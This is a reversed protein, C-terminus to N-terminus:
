GYVPSPREHVEIEGSPNGVPRSHASGPRHDPRVPLRCFQLGTQSSVRIQGYKSGLRVASMPGLPDPYTIPLNGPFPSEIVLRRAVPPDQYGKSSGHTESRQGGQYVGPSSHGARIAPSHVPFNSQVPLVQSVKKVKPCHPHSLLRRQFGAFHGVGRVTPVVPNDGSNGDQFHGHQPIFQASESGIHTEMQRQTQSGSFAPQLLRPVVQCGGIQGHSQRSSRKLVHKKQPQCLRKPDFSVKDSPAKTQLSSHLGGQPYLSGSSKFGHSALSALIKTTKGRCETRPCCQPCQFCTPCFPLSKCLMCRQCAKNQESSFSCSFCCSLICGLRNKTRRLVSDSLVSVEGRSVKCVPSKTKSLLQWKSQKFSQARSFHPNSGRGRGRGRSRHRSFQRWPQQQAQSAQESSASPRRDRHDYPKYRHSGRWSTHQLAGPGPGQAVSSSEAKQIDQEATMIAVDPFLAYGFLPANRLSNMTDQKVGPKVFDLYAEWRLLIMNSMHVFVSDALHQLSTGLAISVRQHFALLDRLDNLADSTEKQAKGKSLRASLVAVNQSM